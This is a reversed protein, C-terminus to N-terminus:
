FLGDFFLYISTALLGFVGGVIGRRIWDIAKAKSQSDFSGTVLYNGGIVFCLVVAGGYLAAAFATLPGWANGGGSQLLALVAAGGQTTSLIM